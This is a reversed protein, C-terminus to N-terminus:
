PGNNDPHMQVNGDTIFYGGTPAPKSTDLGNIYIPTGTCDTNGFIRIEYYDACNECDAETIPTGPVHTCSGTSGPLGGPEGIDELHVTFCYDVGKEIPSSFGKENVFSGIGKFDIQRNTANAGAPICPTGFDSCNIETLTNSHFLFSQSPSVDHHHTWNGDITPQAGAQGGWTDKFTATSNQLSQKGHIKPTTTNQVACTKPDFQLVGKRDLYTICPATISTDAIKEVGGATVRCNGVVEESFKSSGDVKFLLDNAAVSYDPFNGEGLRSLFFAATTSDDAPINLTGEFRFDTISTAPDLFGPNAYDVLGTLTTSGIGTGPSTQSFASFQGADITGHAVLTGDDFGMGTGVNTNPTSDHYIFFEGGTLTIFVATTGSVSIVAEPIKAVVTYEFSSNLGPFSIPQGNPDTLLVLFSQYRFDFITGVALPAGLPGIGRANGSGSSSWDFEMVNPVKAGLTDNFVSGTWFQAHATSFGFLLLFLTLSIFKKM